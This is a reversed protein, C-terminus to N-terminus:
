VNCHHRAVWRHDMDDVHERPGVDASRRDHENIEDVPEIRRAEAVGDNPPSRYCGLPVVEEIVRNSTVDDRQRFESARNSHQSFKTGQPSDGCQKSSQLWVDHVGVHGLSSDHTAQSGEDRALSDANVGEM